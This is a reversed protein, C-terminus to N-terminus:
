ESGDPETPYGAWTEPDHENLLVLLRKGFSIWDIAGLGVKGGSKDAHEQMVGQIWSHPLVAERAPIMSEQLVTMTDIGAAEAAQEMRTLWEGTEKRV